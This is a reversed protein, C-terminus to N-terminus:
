ALDPGTTHLFRDALRVDAHAFSSLDAYFIDYAEEHHVDVATQRLSKGSWNMSPKAGKRKKASEFLSRDHTYKANIEDARGSLAHKWSLEMGERWSTNPSKRHKEVADLRRKEPVSAFKIYRTAREEPELSLYHATVDVEFM